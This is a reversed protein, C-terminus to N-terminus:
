SVLDLNIGRLYMIYTCGDVRKHVYLRQDILWLDVM